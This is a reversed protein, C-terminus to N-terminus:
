FYFIVANFASGSTTASPITFYLLVSSVEALFFYLSNRLSPNLQAISKALFDVSNFQLLTKNYFGRAM